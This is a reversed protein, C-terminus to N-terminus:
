KMSRSQGMELDSSGEDAKDCCSLYSCVRRRLGPHRRQHEEAERDFFSPMLQYHPLAARDKMITRTKNVDARVKAYEKDSLRSDFICHLQNSLESAGEMKWRLLELYNEENTEALSKHLRRAELVFTFLRKIREDGLRMSLFIMVEDCLRQTYYACMISSGTYGVFGESIKLIDTLTDKMKMISAYEAAADVSVTFATGGAFLSIFNITHKLIERTKTLYLRALPVDDSMMTRAASSGANYGFGINPLLSFAAAATGATIATASSSDNFLGSIGAYTAETYNVQGAAIYAGLAFAAAKQGCTEPHDQQVQITDPSTKAPEALSTLRAYFRRYKEDENGNQARIADLEDMIANQRDAPLRMFIEIQENLYELEVRRAPHIHSPTLPLSSVGLWSLSTNAIATLIALYLNTPRAFFFTPVNAAAACLLDFTKRGLNKTKEGCTAETYKLYTEAKSSHGLYAEILSLGSFTAIAASEGTAAAQCIRLIIDRYSLDIGTKDKVAKLITQTATATPNVVFVSALGGIALSASLKATKIWSFGDDDLFADLSARLINMSPKYTKSLAHMVSEDLLAKFADEASQYPQNKDYTHCAEPNVAAANEKDIAEIPATRLM